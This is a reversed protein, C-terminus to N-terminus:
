RRFVAPKALLHPQYHCFYRNGPARYGNQFSLNGVNDFPSLRLYFAGMESHFSHKGAM